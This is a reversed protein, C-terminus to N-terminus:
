QVDESMHELASLSLIMTKVRTVHTPKPVPVRLRFRRHQIIEIPSLPSVDLRQEEQFPVEEEEECRPDGRFEARYVQCEHNDQVTQMLSVVVIDRRCVPFELCDAIVITRTKLSRMVMSPQHVPLEVLFVQKQHNVHSAILLQCQSEDLM